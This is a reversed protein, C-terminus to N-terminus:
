NETDTGIVLYRLDKETQEFFDKPQENIKGDNLIPIQAVNARRGDESRSFHHIAVSKKDIGGKDNEFKKCAVLIGNLIHDSHTELIIQVGEQAALAILEALKSQGRPHLHAEPNEILILSDKQASLIAVIVPLAYTLGFGANDASFESTFAGEVDFKYKIAYSQGTKEPVVNVGASIEREWATTQSLLDNEGPRSPHRMKDSFIKWKKEAGWYYLFQATLEAQGREKSLQKREVLFQDSENKVMRLAALYQFCEGFVNFAGREAAAPPTGSVPIYDGTLDNKKPTFSWEQKAGGETELVFSITDNDASECIADKAAHICCHPKNLQLRQELTGQEHSQRLLLLAQLASSKGVGNIGSLITLNKLELDTDRHAKFNKIVLRTIM